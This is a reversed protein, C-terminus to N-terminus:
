IIPRPQNLQASKLNSLRPSSKLRRIPPGIPITEVAQENQEKQQGKRQRFSWNKWVDGICCRCSTPEKKETQRAQQDGAQLRHGYARVSPTREFRGVLIDQRELNPPFFTSYSNLVKFTWSISGNLGETGAAKLRINDEPVRGAGQYQCHEDKELPPASCNM